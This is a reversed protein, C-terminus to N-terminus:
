QGAAEVFPPKTPDAILEIREIRLAQGTQEHADIVIGNVRPNPEAVDFPTPMDTTMQSLVRDVRRGLVSDMPGTMGLDTIYATGTVGAAQARGPITHHSGPPPLIRADATAVHTHTGFVCTARHNLHWGLAIKESSAEAHVEVLLIVNKRPLESIIRDVCAFPNNAPIPMFLRGLLTIVYVDVGEGVTLKMITKGQAQGSLNAPRILNSAKEELTRVIQKKKYVHDGLTMGDVGSDRLKQYLPPTLGSGSACNEANALILHPSWRERIIPIQQALALRGTTGVIDGLIAIRVSM